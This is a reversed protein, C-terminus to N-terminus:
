FYAYEVIKQYNKQGYKLFSCNEFTFKSNKGGLVVLIRWGEGNM